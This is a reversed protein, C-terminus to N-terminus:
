GDEGELEKGGEEDCEEEHVAYINEEEEEGRVLRAEREMKWKEVAEAIVKKEHEQGLPELIGDDEDRYGYYEAYIDKMLEAWTKWPPPLPEKEFLERVGPLDKTAGLYKYGRNGPVEKGERDLLKPDIRAYDPGGLEKIRYEWHGKERLLKNIEDNLDRIRFEGLGANQIQAVKKSIEGVIQRRRKEAKPLEKCESALFPRREKVKGEELQARWLRALAAMDKEANGAM